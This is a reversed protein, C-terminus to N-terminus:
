HSEIATMVIAMLAVFFAERLYDYEILCLNWLDSTTEASKRQPAVGRSHRGTKHLLGDRFPRLWGNTQDLRSIGTETFLAILQRSEQGANQSFDRLSTLGDGISDWEQLDFAIDLLRTIKDWQARLMIAMFDVFPRGYVEPFSVTGLQALSLDSIDGDYISAFMSMPISQQALGLGQFYHVVTVLEAEILLCHILHGYFREIKKTNGNSNPLYKNGQFFHIYDRVFIGRPRKPYFGTHELWTVDKPRLVNFTQIPIEIPTPDKPMQGVIMLLATVDSLKVQTAAGIIELYEPHPPHNFNFEHGVTSYGIRNAFEKFAEEQKWSQQKENM